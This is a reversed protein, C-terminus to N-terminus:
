KQAPVALSGGHAMSCFQYTVEKSQGNVIAESLDSKVRIIYMKTVKYMFTAM